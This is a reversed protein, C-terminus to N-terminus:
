NENAVGNTMANHLHERPTGTRQGPGGRIWELLDSGMILYQGCRDHVKLRGEKIERRWSNETMGLGQMDQTLLEITYVANEHIIPVRV